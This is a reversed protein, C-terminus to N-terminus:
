KISTWNIEGNDKFPEAAKREEGSKGGVEKEKVIFLTRKWDQQTVQCWKKMLAFPKEKWVILIDHVLLLAPPLGLSPHCFAKPPLHFPHSFLMWFPPHPWSPPYSFLGFHWHPPTPAPAHCLALSSHLFLPKESFVRAWTLGLGREQQFIINSFNFRAHSSHSQLKNIEAAHPNPFGCLPTSKKSFCSSSDTQLSAM